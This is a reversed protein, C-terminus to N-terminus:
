LYDSFVFKGPTVTIWHQSTLPELVTGPRQARHGTPTCLLTPARRPLNYGHYLDRLGRKGQSMLSSTDRSRLPGPLTLNVGSLVSPHSLPLSIAAQPLFASPSLNPLAANGSTAPRVASALSDCTLKALCSVRPNDKLRTESPRLRPLTRQM